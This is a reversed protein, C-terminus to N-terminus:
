RAASTQMKHLLHHVETFHPKFTAWTRTGPTLRLWEKCADNHAGTSFILNYAINILQTDTCANNGAPALDQMADICTFLVKILLSPNFKNRLKNDAEALMAPSICGYNQYLHQVIVLSSVTTFGMLPACLASTYM